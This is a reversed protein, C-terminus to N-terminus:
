ADPGKQDGLPIIAAIRWGSEGGPSAQLAAGLVSARERMGQLGRGETRRRDAPLGDDIVELSLGDARFCLKVEALTAGRAHRLVNTLAEQVIRYIAMEAVPGVTVPEGEVSLRAELGAGRVRDLLDALDGLGPQPRLEGAGGLVGLLGQLEGLADRGTSAIQGIAEQARAPAGPVSVFAGDALAVMVSVNHAVIDHVERAIREREAAVALETQQERQRRLREARDAVAGLQGRRARVALGVAFAAALAALAATLVAVTGGPGNLLIAGALVAASGIVAPALRAPDPEETAFTALAILV